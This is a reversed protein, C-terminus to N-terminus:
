APATIGTPRGSFVVKCTGYRVQRLRRSIVFTSTLLLPFTLAVFLPQYGALVVAIAVSGAGQILSGLFLGACTPCATFLGTLAGLGGFWQVSAGKPRIDYTHLALTANLGVLGSVLILLIINAPIILLGLHETLYVTLIPIFGPGGCCVTPVISPIVALYDEAFNQAPRYVIISSVAAYFLGYAIASALMARSYKRLGLVNAIIVLMPPSAYEDAAMKEAALIQRIGFASVAVGLFMLIITLYSLWKFVGLITTTLVRFSSTFGSYFLLSAVVAFLGGLTNIIGTKQFRVWSSM